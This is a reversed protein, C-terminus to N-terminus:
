IKYVLKYPEIWFRRRVIQRFKLHVMWLHQSSIPKLYKKAVHRGIWVVLFLFNEQYFQWLLNRKRIRTWLSLYFRTWQCNSSVTLLYNVSKWTKPEIQVPTVIWENKRINENGNIKTKVAVKSVNWALCM